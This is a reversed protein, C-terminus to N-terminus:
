HLKLHSRYADKIAEEVEDFPHVMICHLKIRRLRERASPCDLDQEYAVISAKLENLDRDKQANVFWGGGRRRLQRLGLDHM